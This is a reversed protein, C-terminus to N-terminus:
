DGKVNVFTHPIFKLVRQKTGEVMCWYTHWHARRIHPRVTRGTDTQYTRSQINFARIADGTDRGVLRITTRSPPVFAGPRAKVKGRISDSPKTGTRFNESCAYLILPLIRKLTILPVPDEKDAMLEMFSGFDDLSVNYGFWQTVYEKHEKQIVVINLYEDIYSVIFGLVEVDDIMMPAYMALGYEPLQSLVDTSISDIKDTDNSLIQFLDDDLRYINKSLSWSLVNTGTNGM